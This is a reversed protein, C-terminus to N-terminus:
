KEEQQNRHSQSEWFLEVFDEVCTLAHDNYQGLVDITILQASSVRECVVKMIAVDLADEDGTIAMLRLFRVCEEWRWTVHARVELVCSVEKENKFCGIVVDGVDACCASIILEGDM